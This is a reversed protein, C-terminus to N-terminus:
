AAEPYDKIFSEAKETWSTYQDNNRHDEFIGIESLMRSFWKSFVIAGATNLHGLDAFHTEDIELNEVFDVDFCNFFLAGNSECWKEITESQEKTIHSDLEPMTLVALQIGKEQCIEAIENYFRLPYNDPFAERGASKQILSGNVPTKEDRLQCGLLYECYDPDFPTFDREELENWRSHYTLLPVTWYIKKQKPSSKLVEELMQDRIAKDPMTMIFKRYPQEKYNDVTKSTFLDRMDLVVMKPTQWKLAYLFHYFIIPATGWAQGWNFSTIGSERFLISPVVGRKILSSSFLLLDVSNEPLSQYCNYEPTVDYEWKYRVIEGTVSLLLILVLFFLVPRILTRFVNISM